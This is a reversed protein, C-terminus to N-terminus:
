QLAQYRVALFRYRIAERLATALREHLEPLWTIYRSIFQNAQQRDGASQISLVDALMQGIVQRYRDYHIKLRGAGNDFELLGKELFYNMQMLEMTQYPQDPRPQIQQLVRLVGAAQVSRLAEDTMLGTTNLHASTFESVLDAKLEEYLNGWPALAEDLERGDATKDVGLYHGVEHWLIRYFSGDPTLDAAQQPVVAAQFKKTGDEFLGRNSLINYRLLVTRGYKRAHDAENPLITATNGGRSQGFDAIVNYVGVPIDHQVRRRSAQPLSDQIQQLGSLATTLEDSKGTDRVLVSLGFFSKVGYLADGYTEYSGIEANLHRFQGRVWAADGAEYDDSLLDRARLSLYAALDPDDQRVDSAAASLLDFAQLIDPAWRVSYPLAYWPEDDARSNLAELRSRLGPHLGDLVPFRDLMALDHTLNKGTTARVVARVALLEGAEQPRMHIFHDLKEATMGPPYVNKGPEEPTVPLFPVRRNDLTTV